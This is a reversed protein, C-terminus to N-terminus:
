QESSEREREREIMDRADRGTERARRRRELCMDFMSRVRRLECRVCVCVCVCRLLMVGFGARYSHRHRMLDDLACVGPWPPLSTMM